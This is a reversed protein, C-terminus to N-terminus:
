RWWGPGGCEEDIAKWFAILGFTPKDSEESQPQDTQPKLPPEAKNRRRDGWKYPVPEGVALSTIELRRWGGKAAGSKEEIRFWRAVDEPPLRKFVKTLSDLRAGVANALAQRSRFTRGPFAQAIRSVTELNYSFDHFTM